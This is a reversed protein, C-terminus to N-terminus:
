EVRYIVNFESNDVNYSVLRYEASLAEKDVSGYGCLYRINGNYVIGNIKPIEMYDDYNNIYDIGTEPTFFQYYGLYQYKNGSKKMHAILVGAPENDFSDIHFVAFVNNKDLEIVGINEYSVNKLIGSDILKEEPTATYHFNWNLVGYINLEVSALVIIAAVVVICIIIITKKKSTM